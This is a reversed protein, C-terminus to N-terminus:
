SCAAARRPSSPAGKSVRPPDCNPNRGGEGSPTPRRCYTARGGQESRHCVGSTRRGAAPVMLKRSQVLPAAVEPHTGDSWPRLGGPEVVLDRAAGLRIQWALGYRRLGSRRLEFEAASGM